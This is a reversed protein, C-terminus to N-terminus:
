GEETKVSSKRKAKIIFFASTGALLLVGTAIGTWLLIPDISSEAPTISAQKPFPTNPNFNPSNCDYASLDWLEPSGAGARDADPVISAWYAEQYDWFADESFLLHSTAVTGGDFYVYNGLNTKYCIASGLHHIRGSLFYVSQIIIDPSVTKIADGTQFEHLLPERSDFREFYYDPYLHEKKLIEGNERLVYYNIGAETIQAYNADSYYNIIHDIGEDTKSSFLHTPAIYFRVLLDTEDEDVLNLIQPPIYRSDMPDTYEEASVGFSLASILLIISTFLLISRKM